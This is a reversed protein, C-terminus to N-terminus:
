QVFYVVKEILIETLNLHIKQFSYFIFFFLNIYIMKRHTTSIDSYGGSKSGDYLNKLNEHEAAAETTNYFSNDPDNLLLEKASIVNINPNPGTGDTTRLINHNYGFAFVELESFALKHEDGQSNAHMLFIYRTARKLINNQQPTNNVDSPTPDVIQLM